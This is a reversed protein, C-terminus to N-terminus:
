SLQSLFNCGYEALRRRQTRPQSATCISCFTQDGLASSARQMGLVQCLPPTQGTPSPHFKSMEVQRPTRLMQASLTGLCRHVLARLYQPCRLVSRGLVLPASASHCWPEPAGLAAFCRPCQAGPAYTGLNSPRTDLFSWTCDFLQPLTYSAASHLVVHFSLIESLVFRLDRSDLQFQHSLYGEWNGLGSIILLIPSTKSLRPNSKAYGSM